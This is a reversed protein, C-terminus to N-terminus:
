VKMWAENLMLMKLFVSLFIITLVNAITPLGTKATPVCHYHKNNGNRNEKLCLGSTGHCVFFRNTDCVKPQKSPTDDSLVNTKCEHTKEQDSGGLGVPQESFKDHNTGSPEASM